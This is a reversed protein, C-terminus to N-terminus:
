PWVGLSGKDEFWEVEGREVDKRGPLPNAQCWEPSSLCQRWFGAGDCYQCVMNDEPYLCCCCDEGCDHGDFGDECQDCRETLVSSGCRACQCDYQKGDNPPRPGIYPETNM